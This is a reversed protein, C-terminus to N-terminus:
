IRFVQYLVFRRDATPLFTFLQQLTISNTFYSFLFLVSLLYFSAAAQHNDADKKIFTQESEEEEIEVAEIELVKELNEFSNKLVADHHVVSEQNANISNTFQQALHFSTVERHYHALLPSYISSLLICTSLLFKLFSKKM